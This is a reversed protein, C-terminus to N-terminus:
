AAKTLAVTWWNSGIAFCAYANTGANNDDLLGIFGTGLTAPQGFASDLEADTPPNATNATSVKTRMGAAFETIGNFLSPNTGASYLGYNATSSGSQNGIYLGYKTGGTNLTSAEVYMQAFHTYALTGTAAPAGAWFTAYGMTANSNTLTAAGTAFDARGWYVQGNSTDTTNTTITRSFSGNLASHRNTIATDHAMALQLSLGSTSQGAQGSTPESKFRIRENTTFIQSTTGVAFAGNSTSAIQTATAAPFSVTTGSVRFLNTGNLTAANTLVFADSDDNDAGWSWSLGGNTTASYFPDGGTGATTIAQIRVHAGTDAQLNALQFRTTGVQDLQGFMGGAFGVGGASILSGTTSSTSDTTATTRINNATVRGGVGVGGTSVVVAGTAVSTSATANSFTSIGGIAFTSTGADWASSTVSGSPLTVTGSFTPSASFVLNTSATGTTGTASSLYGIQTSTTSAASLFGSADSVLARSATLAALKNVAIAAAAKIDADEINTITNSDADITKNTLSEVGALTALTGTTPLTLGTTNTTTLTLAHNGSRTLTAADNNAVGTGGASPPVVGASSAIPVSNYTLRNSSDVTLPLNDSGAANRWAITETNGLRLVGTTALGAARSKYYISALGRSAGFDADNTLTFAGGTKQLVGSPIAVFYSTLNQGWDNDGVEPISYSVGNLTVSQAM